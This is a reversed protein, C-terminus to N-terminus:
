LGCLHCLLEPLIVDDLSVLILKLFQECVVLLKIHSPVSTAQLLDLIEATVLTLKDIKIVCLCLM